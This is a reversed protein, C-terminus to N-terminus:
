NEQMHYFALMILAINKSISPVKTGKPCFLITSLASIEILFSCSFPTLHTTHEPLSKLSTPLPLSTSSFTFNSPMM